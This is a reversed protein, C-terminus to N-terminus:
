SPSIWRSATAQHTFSSTAWTQLFLTLIALYLNPSLLTILSLPFYGLAGVIASLTLRDRRGGAFRQVVTGSLINGILGGIGATGAMTIGVMAIPMHHTRIFFPAM